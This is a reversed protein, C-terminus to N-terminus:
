ILSGLADLLTAVSGRARDLRDRTSREDSDLPELVRSLELVAHHASRAFGTVDELGSEAADCLWGLEWNVRETCDHLQRGLTGRQVVDPNWLAISFADDLTTLVCCAAACWM